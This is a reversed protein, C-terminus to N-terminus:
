RRGCELAGADGHPGGLAAADDAQEAQPDGDGADGGREAVQELDVAGGPDNGDLDDGAVAPRSVQRGSASVVPRRAPSWTRAM